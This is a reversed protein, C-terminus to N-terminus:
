RNGLQGAHMLFILFAYLIKTMFYAPFLGDPLGRAYSSLFINFISKPAATQPSHWNLNLIVPPINHVLFCVKQDESIYPIEQLKIALLKELLSRCFGNETLKLKRPTLLM